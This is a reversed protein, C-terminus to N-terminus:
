ERGKKVRRDHIFNLAEQISRFKRASGKTATTNFYVQVVGTKFRESIIGAFAGGKTRVEFSQGVDKIHGALELAYTM